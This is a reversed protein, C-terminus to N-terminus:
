PKCNKCCEHHKEALFASPEAIVYSSHWCATTIADADPDLRRIVKPERKAVRQLGRHYIAVPLIVLFGAGLVIQFFQDDSM